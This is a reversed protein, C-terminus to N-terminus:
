KINKIILCLKDNNYFIVDKILSTILENTEDDVFESKFIGTSKFNKLVRLTTNSRDENIMLSQNYLTSGPDFNSTHLDEIFYLGNDKIIPLFVGISIQQHHMGHGGDDIFVDLSGVTDKIKNLSTIDSQDGVLCKIRDNDYEDSRDDIDVMYIQSNIFYDYWAYVSEGTGIGIEMFNLNDMKLPELYDNYIYSYRHGESSNGKDSKYKDIIEILNM